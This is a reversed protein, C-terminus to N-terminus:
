LSSLLRHSTTCMKLANIVITVVFVSVMSFLLCSPASLDSDIKPACAYVCLVCACACAGVWACVCVCVCFEFSRRTVTHKERVQWFGVANIMKAVDERPTSLINEVTLGHKKLNTMAKGTIQDKTQSSLMLSVLVQYRRVQTHPHPHTHHTPLTHTHTHPM